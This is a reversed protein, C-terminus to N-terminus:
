YLFQLFSSSLCPLLLLVPTLPCSSSNMQQTRITGGFVTAYVVIAVVLQM